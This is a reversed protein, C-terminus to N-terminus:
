KLFGQIVPTVSTISPHIQLLPTAKAPFQRPISEPRFITLRFRGRDRSANRIDSLDKRNHSARILAYASNNKGASSKLNISVPHWM